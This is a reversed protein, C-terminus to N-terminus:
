VVKPKLQVVGHPEPCSDITPPFPAVRWEELLQQRMICYNIRCMQRLALFGHLNM